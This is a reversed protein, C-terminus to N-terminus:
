SASRPGKTKLTNRQRELAPSLQVSVDPYTPHLRELAVRMIQAVLIRATKKDDAPVVYWPAIETSTASLCDEYALVYDDWCEREGIDAMNLKWHKNPQEIRGLFRKRQEENSLHLYIKVTATGSRALHAEHDLISRIRGNWFGASSGQGALGQPGLLEPHVRVVLVEEYYSRNFVGIHGHPPLRVTTRWLFDHRLELPSPPEFNHVECGQPNIGSLVHRIVGDKGSGDPGQLIVLLASRQGAYLARQLKSIQKVRKLLRERYNSKSEYLPAIQTPLESLRVRAGEAIRFPEIELTM